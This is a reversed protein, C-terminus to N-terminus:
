KKKYTKPCLKFNRSQETIFMYKKCKTRKFKGNAKFFTSDRAHKVVATVVAELNKNSMSM